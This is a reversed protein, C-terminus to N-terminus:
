NNTYKEILGSEQAWIRIIEKEYDTPSRNYLGRVQIISNEQVECTLLATKKQFEDIKGFSFIYSLGKICDNKYSSVCHRLTRGEHALEMSNKLQVIFYKQEDFLINFDEIGSNALKRNRKKEYNIESITALEEHWDSIDKLLKEIKIHKIDIFRGEELVRRRLYDMVQTVHMLELGRNFLIAMAKVWYESNNFNRISLAVRTCYWKHKLQSMLLSYVLAQSISMENDELKYLYMIARRTMRLPLDTHNQLQIGSYLQGVWLKEQQSIRIDCFRDVILPPLEAQAIISRLLKGGDIEDGFVENWERFRSKNMKFLLYMQDIYDSALVFMFHPPLKEYLVDIFELYELTASRGAGIRRFHMQMSSVIDVANVGNKLMKDMHKFLIKLPSELDNAFENKIVDINRNSTENSLLYSVLPYSIEGKSTMIVKQKLAYGLTYYRAYVDEGALPAVQPKSLIYACFDSTLNQRDICKSLKLLYKFIDKNIKWRQYSEIMWNLSFFPMKSARLVSCYAKLFQRIIKDEDKKHLKLFNTLHNQITADNLLMEGPRSLYAVIANLLEIKREKSM